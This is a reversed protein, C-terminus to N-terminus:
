APSASWLQQITKCHFDRPWRALPFDSRRLSTGQVLDLNRLGMVLGLKLYAYEEVFGTIKSSGTTIGLPHNVDKEWDPEPDKWDPVFSMLLLPAHVEAFMIIGNLCLLEFGFYFKQFLSHWDQSQQEVLWKDM